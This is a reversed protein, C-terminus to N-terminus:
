EIEEIIFEIQEIVIEIEEITDFPEENYKDKWYQIFQKIKKVLYSM